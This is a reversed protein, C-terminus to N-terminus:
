YNISLITVIIEKGKVKFKANDNVSKHLVAQSLPSDISITGKIANAESSGVIKITYNPKNEVSTYEVEVTTGIEVTKAPGTKKDEILQYDALVEKLEAIRSEIQDQLSKATDYAANEKLDGDARAKSLSDLVEPLRVSSLDHLEAQIEELGKATIFQTM